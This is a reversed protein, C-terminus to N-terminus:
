FIEDQHTRLWNVAFRLRSRLTADPIHLEKAIEPSSMGLIYRKELLSRYHEPIRDSLRV